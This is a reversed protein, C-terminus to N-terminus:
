GHSWEEMWQEQRRRSCGNCTRWRPRALRGSLSGAIDEPSVIVGDSPTVLVEGVLLAPPPVEASGDCFRVEPQIGSHRRAPGRCLAHLPLLPGRPAAQVVVTVTTM